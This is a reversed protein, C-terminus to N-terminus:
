DPSAKGLQAGAATAVFTLGDGVGRHVPGASLWARLTRDTAIKEFGTM